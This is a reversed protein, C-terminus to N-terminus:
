EGFKIKYKNELYGVLDKNYKIAPYMQKILEIKDLDAKELKNDRSQSMINTGINSIAQGKINRTQAQNQLNAITEQKGTELNYQQASNKIGANMNNYERRIKDKNLTTMGALQIRNALYNGANGSSRDALDYAASKSAIDADRLSATPDLLSPNMRGYEEHVPQQSRDLDYISGANQLLGMGIEKAVPMFKGGGAFGPKSLNVTRLHADWQQQYTGKSPDNVYTFGPLTNTNPTTTGTQMGVNPNMLSMQPRTVNSDSFNGQTISPRNFGLQEETTLRRGRPDIPFGKADLGAYNTDPIMGQNYTPQKPVTFGGDPYEQIGGEKHFGHHKKFTMALAKRHPTCTAKTMPTCFGKHKPNVAKQIWHKGGSKYEPQGDNNVEMKGGLRKTYSDIKSQKLSEQENFLALSAQNKAHKMLSATHKALSSSKVDDLIKDEKDTNNPKNLKAFTKGTGKMKLRDSFILTGPDLETPIGGQEHSPGDYQDTTGDPNLTNEEKEVEANAEGGMAYQHMGGCDYCPQMGGMAYAGQGKQYGYYNPNNPNNPDMMGSANIQPQGQNLMNNQSTVPYPEDTQGQMVTNGMEAAMGKNNGKGVGQLGRMTWMEGIKSGTQAFPMAQNYNAMQAENMGSNEVRSGPVFKNAMKALPSQSDFSEKYAQNKGLERGLGTNDYQDQKIINAGAGSTLTTLANDAAYLGLDKAKKSIGGLATEGGLAYKDTAKDPEPNIIQTRRKSTPKKFVRKM